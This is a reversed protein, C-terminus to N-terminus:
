AGGSGAERPLDLPLAGVDGYADTYRRFRERVEGEDLGYEDLTYRHQGHKGKPNEARFRRIAADAEDTYPLDFHAYVDQIAAVPDKVFREFPLDYFQAPDRAERAAMMRYISEEWLALTDRGFAHIDTGENMASRSAWCLSCVSAIMPVPDRHTQIVRADPYVDLLADAGFLHTADKFLWPKEPSTSGVLQANRRHREYVPRLDATARWEAYGHVDANAQYSGHTFNQDFVNWDEDPLFAEIEHIARMEPSRAFMMDVRALAAQYDPDADWAERPPRPKPTRMLWHEFAQLAPDQALLHHLATTGTRPLGIIVLPREITAEGAEPHRRWGEECLLRAQLADVIMTQHAIEGLPTLNADEDLSACLVGLAERYDDEGFDELGRAESARAHFEDIADRFRFPAM